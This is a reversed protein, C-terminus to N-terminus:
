SLPLRPSDKRQSSPTQSQMAIVSAILNGLHQSSSRHSTFAGSGPSIKKTAEGRLQHYEVEKKLYGRYNSDRSSQIISEIKSGDQLRSM